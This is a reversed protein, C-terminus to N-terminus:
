FANNLLSRVHMQKRQSKLVRENRLYTSVIEPNQKTYGNVADETIKPKQQVVAVPVPQEPVPAQKEPAAKIDAKCFGRRKHIYKLTHQIMDMKCDRCKVTQKLKYIKVPAPKEEFVPEEVIPEVSEKVIEIKPKARSKSKPKAKVEEKIAEKIEEKVEEKVEEKIPEENNTIDIIDDRTEEEVM